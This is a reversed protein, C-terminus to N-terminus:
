PHKGRRRRILGLAGLGLAAVTTPEPVAQTATARLLWNGRLNYSSTKKIGSDSAALNNPDFGGLKTTWSIWANDLLPYNPDAVSQFPAPYFDEVDIDAGIFFNTTGTIDANVNVTQLNGTDIINPDITATATTLLSPADAGSGTPTGKWVFVRFSQGVEAGSLVPNSPNGFTTQISTIHSFGNTVKFQEIWAIDAPNGIGIGDGTVGSDSRYLQANAVVSTGCFLAFLITKSKM